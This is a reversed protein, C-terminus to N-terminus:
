RFEKYSGVLRYAFTASDMWTTHSPNMTWTHGLPVSPSAKPYFVTPVILLLSIGHHSLGYKLKSAFWSGLFRPRCQELVEVLGVSSAVAAILFTLLNGHFKIYVIGDGMM